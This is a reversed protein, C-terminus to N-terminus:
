RTSPDPKAGVTQVVETMIEASLGRGPVGDRRLVIEGDRFVIVTPVTEIRFTDWLPNSEDSLDVLAAEIGEEHLVSEFIPKFRRCFPCWSALFM